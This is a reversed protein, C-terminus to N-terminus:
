PAGLMRPLWIFRPPADAGPDASPKRAMKKQAGTGEPHVKVVVCEMRVTLIQEKQLRTFIRDLVGAKHPHLDHALQWVSAASAAMQM